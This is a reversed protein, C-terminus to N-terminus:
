SFRWFYVFRAPPSVAAGCASRTSMTYASRKMELSQLLHLSDLGYHM